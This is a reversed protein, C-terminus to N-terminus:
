ELGFKAGTTDVGNHFEKATMARKGTPQLEHIVVAGDGTRVLLRGDEDPIVVGPAIQEWATSSTENAADVDLVFVRMPKRNPCHLFSIPMPWPQMGRVHWGIQESAKSWDIIGMEKKFKPARTVLKPDQSQEDLTGQEMGHLVDLLLPGGFEALRDHLQGSTEKPGIPTTVVGVIKGADLKPEIRFITIGTETEGNLVAFQIPAAGRYKPLLSGHLNIAGHPAIELLEKSLIQGYAAVVFIDADYSRLKELSELSNVNEPQFVDIENAVAAEKMPHPHQHHGRGKRDPQTVLGVIDYDSDILTQFCPLAFAGTGMM